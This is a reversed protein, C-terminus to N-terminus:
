RAPSVSPASLSTAFAGPLKRASPRAARMSSSFLGDGSTVSAKAVSSSPSSSAPRSWSTATSALFSELLSRTRRTMTAIRSSSPTSWGSARSVRRLIAAASYQAPRLPDDARAGRPGGRPDERSGSAIAGAGVRRRDIRVGRVADRAPRDERCDRRPGRQAGREGDDSFVAARRASGAYRELLVIQQGRDDWIRITGDSGASVIRRGGPHFAVSEVRGDDGQWVVPDGGAVPWIRITGDDGGTVIRRGDRSYAVSTIPRSPGTAGGSSARERRPNRLDTAGRGGFRDRDEGRAPQVRARAGPGNPRQLEVRGTGDSARVIAPRDGGVAVRDGTQDLGVAFLETEVDPVLHSENRAIDYVWVKGHASASAVTTGDASTRMECAVCEGRRGDDGGVGARLARDAGSAPDWRHLSGDLAGWVVLDGTFGPVSAANAALARRRRPMWVRLTGDAGGSVLTGDGAFAASYVPGGHGRLEDLLGAGGADFVRVVGDAATTVLERGSRSYRASQLPRDLVRVPDGIEEGTRADRIRLRGDDSATAVHRGDPSFTADLIRAPGDRLARGPRGPRGEVSWIRADGGAAVSVVRSGGSDVEVSLVRAISGAVTLGRPADPRDISTRRHRGVRRPPGGALDAIRVTGDSGGVVLMDPVGRGVSFRLSSVEQVHDPPIAPVTGVDGDDVGVIKIQGNGGAVAVHRGDPHLAVAPAPGSAVAIRRLVRGARLDWVRVFPHDGATVVRQGDASAAVTKVAGAGAPLIATARDGLTAQRVVREAAATRRRDYAEVALRRSRAPASDVIREAEATDARSQAIDRQTATSARWLALGAM